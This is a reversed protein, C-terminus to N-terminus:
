GLLKLVIWLIAGPVLSLLAMGVVIDYGIDFKYQRRYAWKVRQLGGTPKLGGNMIAVVSPIIFPIRFRTHTEPNIATTARM